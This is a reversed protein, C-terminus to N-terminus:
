SRAFCAYERCQSKIADNHDATRADGWAPGALLSVSATLDTSFVVQGEERAQERRRPTPAETGNHESDSM